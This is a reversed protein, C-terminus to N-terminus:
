LSEFVADWRPLLAEEGHNAEAYLQGRRGAERRASEDAIYRELVAIWEDITVCAMPLGCAEMARDYAPTASVITPIGMRWFILLKNEPKGLYLPNDSPIPIVALDCATAVSSMMYENWEYVYAERFYRDVLRKIDRRRFRSEQYHLDTILHFSVDAREALADLAPKIAAFSKLNEPLGEWVIKVTGNVAYNTKTTRVLSGHADLVVHVNPCLPRIDDAQEVTTCVVADARRCMAEIARRYDLVPHRIERSVFKVPGRLRSRLDNGRVALYSDVLDYVLKASGPRYRAWITPDANESVVVVDYDRDPDALEFDLERRRAYFAFRRRDGPGSLDPTLPAYGIRAGRLNM